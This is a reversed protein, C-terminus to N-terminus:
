VYLTTEWKKKKNSMKAHFGFIEYLRVKLRSTLERRFISVVLVCFKKKKM